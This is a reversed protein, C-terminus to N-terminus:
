VLGLERLKSLAQDAEVSWYRFNTWEVGTGFVNDQHVLSRAKELCDVAERLEPMELIFKAMLRMSPPHIIDPNNSRDHTIGLDSIYSEIRKEIESQKAFETQM